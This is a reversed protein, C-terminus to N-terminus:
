VGLRGMSTTPESTVAIRVLALRLNGFRVGLIWRVWIAYFGMSIAFGVMGGVIQLPLKFQQIDGGLSLIIMGGVMGLVFGLPLTVALGAFTTLINRWLLGWWIRVWERMTLQKADVVAPQSTLLEEM